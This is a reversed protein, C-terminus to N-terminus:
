INFEFKYLAEGLSAMRLYNNQRNLHVYQLIKKNGLADVCDYALVLKVQKFIM